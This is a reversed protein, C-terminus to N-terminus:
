IEDLLCSHRRSNPVPASIRFFASMALDFEGMRYHLKGLETRTREVQARSDILRESGLPVM